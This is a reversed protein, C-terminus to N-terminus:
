KARVFNASLTYEGTVRALWVRQTQKHWGLQDRVYALAKEEACQTGFYCCVDKERNIAVLEGLPQASLRANTAEILKQRLDENTTSLNDCDDLANHHHRQLEAYQARLDEIETRQSGVLKGLDDLAQKMQEITMNM